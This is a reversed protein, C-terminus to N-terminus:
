RAYLFGVALGVALAAALRVLRRRFPDYQVALPTESLLKDLTTAIKRGPINEDFASEVEAVTPAAIEGIREKFREIAKERKNLVREELSALNESVVEHDAHRGLEDVIRDFEAPVTADTPPEQHASDHIVSGVAKRDERFRRRVRQLVPIEDFRNRSSATTETVRHHAKRLSDFEGETTAGEELTPSETVAELESIAHDVMTGAVSDLVWQVTTRAGEFREHDRCREWLREHDQVLRTSDKVSMTSSGDSWSDDPLERFPVDRDALADLVRFCRAVEELKAENQGDSAEVAQVHGTLDDLFEEVADDAATELAEEVRDVTGSQVEQLAKRVKKPLSSVRDEVRAVNHLAVDRHYDTEAEPNLVLSRVTSLSYFQRMASANQSKLESISESLAGVARDLCANELVKPNLPKVMEDSRRVIAAVNVTEVVDATEREVIAVAADVESQLYKAFQVGREFSDVALQVPDAPDFDGDLHRDVEGRAVHRIVREDLLPHEDAYRDLGRPETTAVNPFVWPRVDSDPESVSWGKEELEEQVDDYFEDFSLEAGDGEYYVYMKHNEPAVQFQCVITRDGPDVRLVTEPDVDSPKAAPDGRM